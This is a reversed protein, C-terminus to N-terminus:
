TKARGEAAPSPAPDPAPHGPNESGTGVPAGDAEGDVEGDGEEEPEEVREILEGEFNAVLRDLIADAGGFKLDDITAKGSGQPGKYHAYALGKNKWKRKDIRHVSDFPIRKGGPTTFSSADARLTKPRNVLFVVLIVVALTGMVGSIVLQETVDGQTRKDPEEPWGKGAAYDRWAPPEGTEWGSEGALDPWQGLRGEAELQGYASSREDYVQFEEYIAVDAPYSWLGDKLFWLGFALVMLFMLGMRKLYWRTTHCVIEGTGRGAPDAPDAAAESEPATM